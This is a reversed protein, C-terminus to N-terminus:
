FQPRRNMVRSSAQKNVAPSQRHRLAPLKPARRPQDLPSQLWCRTRSACFWLARVVRRGARDRRVLRELAFSLAEVSLVRQGLISHGLLAAGPARGDGHKRRSKRHHPPSLFSSPTRVQKFSSGAFTSPCFRRRDSFYQSILM